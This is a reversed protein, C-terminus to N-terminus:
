EDVSEFSCHTTVDARRPQGLLIVRQGPKLKALEPPTEGWNFACVGGERFYVVPFEKGDAREMAVRDVHGDIRLPYGLYKQRAAVENTRFAATLEKATVDIPTQAFFDAVRNEDRAAEEASRENKAAGGAGQDSPAAKSCATWAGLTALLVWSTRM